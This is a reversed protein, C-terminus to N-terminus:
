PASPRRRGRPAIPDEVHAASGPSTPASAIYKKVTRRDLATRRAVEEFNGCRRYIMRCYATLLADATLSGSRAQALWHEEVAASAARGAYEGSILVRRVAQELERVNGPWEYRPPLRRRLTALAREVLEADEGGTLRAVIFGILQELEAPNADIRERLPPVRIIDSSLRYFFDERFRGDRMLADIDRNTAAIIRGEFRRPAHDGVRSYRRYQLVNLLKIQIPLAVDGIEDLLLSGHRHCRAFIGDHQEVAGTFAGKRHGFLESEILTEPFESLNIAHFTDAFSAAFRRRGADFPIFGAQGIAAAAAGKGTGTEGLLLLSFDEMRGALHRTYRRLDTTFVNNWLAHRLRRMPASDGVLAEAIFYYARRLQYLLGIYEGIREAAIGLQVLERTMREAYAVTIPEAGAAIQAQISADMDPRFREFARFLFGHELLDRDPEAVSALRDIGRAALEQLRRDLVPLLVEFAHLGRTAAAQVDIGPLTALQQPEVSFPNAFIADTVAQLFGRDEQALRHTTTM